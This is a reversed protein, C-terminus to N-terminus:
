KCYYVIARDCIDGSCIEYEFLPQHDFPGTYVALVDNIATTDNPDLPPSFNQIEVSGSGYVATITISTIDCNEFNDNTLIASGDQVICPGGIAEITECVPDECERFPDISYVLSNGANIKVSKRGTHAKESNVVASSSEDIAEKFSFHDQAMINDQEVYEFNDFGIEGYKANSAVATPLSGYYDYQASSYRGLADKNELEVGIPSIRTVESAFTWQDPYKAWGNTDDYQYFPLYEKYFGENRPHYGLEGNNRSTLYAYSKQARFDGKTNYLYPNYKKYQDVGTVNGDTDFLHLLEEPLGYECQSDWIDNYEIASTNVVEKGVWDGPNILRIYDGGSTVLPLQRTTVSSMSSNIVNRKGSRIVTFNSNPIEAYFGEDTMLQVNNGIISVVWHSKGGGDIKLEDGLNLYKSPDLLIGSIPHHITHENLAVNQISGQLGLNDTAFGMNEYHWRAPYNFSYYNDNYENDVETLLVDGTDADWVLNRTSVSAGLDYAIKEKLIANTHIVKTTSAMKLQTEHIRFNPYVTPVVTIFFFPPLPLPYINIAVNGDAGVVEARSRSKRFDNIMDYSVGLPEYSIDGQDNMLPVVNDLENSENTAYIYDVGSLFEEEGQGEAKIRQSKMKGNMDNTRVVIGQSMALHNRTRVRLFNGILGTRDFEVSPDTHDTLTPYDRSTYFETISEGTAHKTLSNESTSKDLNKVKVRSYTVQASPFFSEGLPMEIYNYEKPAVLKVPDDFIPLVFPNEKSGNPEFTSVGSSKGQADLYSYEQGYREKYLQNGPNDVMADWDDDLTIKKVRCGGGYKFGTPEYMRIWSKAPIFRSAIDKAKLAQNPGGFINIIGGIAGLLPGAVDELGDIDDDAPLGYAQRNLHKRAFYWGAKSLPNVQQGSGFIGGEKDQFQLPLSVYNDGGVSFISGDNELAVYGDVYDYNQNGPNQTMNTLFRFYMLNNQSYGITGNPGETDRLYEGRFDTYNYGAPLDDRLKVYIYRKQDNGNYLRNENLQALSPVANNGAGTVKFMQMTRRDQVYQYDDSEQEVTLIGGSPLNISSLTWATTNQDATIKDQETFPFETSTLPDSAVNCSAAGTNTKYTGWVDYGKLNYNPNNQSYNFVYPTYEGMYSDQYTFYVEKLTLKGPGTTGNFDAHNPINKCLEYDYEFHATKLPVAKIPDALYDPLAYLKIRDLKKMSNNLSQDVGGNEGLAGLGDLRDSLEFIAIHTKTEISKIYKLEKEGYVYNAKQDIHDTNLGANYSAANQELPTRWRYSPVETAYEIKTYTGLDDQTIGNDTLDEYDSSVVGTLLFNSAYEPTTIRNFYHDRGNDNANSNDGLSYGVLGSACNPTAGEAINFTAEIKKTNYTTEGYIYRSGDENLVSFGATHHDPMSLRHQILGISEAELNTIQQIATSRKERNQRKIKGLSVNQYVPSNSSNYTKAQYYNKTKRKFRSGGIGIKLPRIDYFNNHGLAYEADSSMDGSMKFYYPEYDANQTPNESDYIFSNLAVNNSDEWRGSSSSSPNVEIDLGGHFILPGGVEVGLSGGFGESVVYNNYLNGVQSRCPRFGGQLGQGMVVYNDYTYNTPALAKTNENVIRDKERNFDLISQGAVSNETNEYGFAPMTKDREDNKLHQNNLWGTLQGQPGEIGFCWEFGLGLSLSLNTSNYSLENSPTFTLYDNLPLGLSINQKGNLKYLPNKIPTNINLSTLGQQSDYTVGLGGILSERFYKDGEKKTQFLSVSPSVSVGGGSTLGLQFGANTSERTGIDFSPGFSANYTIGHYNNFQVGLGISLDLFDYGYIPFRIDGNVGVTTNDRLNNEYRIGDGKFDDPIGRVQRNIQGVNLNWGLGVWSAEQDMTVGSDYALNIPYGGIDMVPINYNFDGSSLNVMDSTGIPTFANFEPQSPGSTLAWLHSPQVVTVIMQIALYSAIVRSIRSKRIKQIM